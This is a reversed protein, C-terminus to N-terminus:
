RGFLYPDINAALIGMTCHAWVGCWLMEMMGDNRRGGGGWWWVSFVDKIDVNKVVLLLYSVSLVAITMIKCLM